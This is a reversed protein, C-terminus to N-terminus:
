IRVSPKELLIFYRSSNDIQPDSVSSTRNPQSDVSSTSANFHDSIVKIKGLGDDM